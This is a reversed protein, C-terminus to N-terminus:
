GRMVFECVAYVEGNRGRLEIVVRNKDYCVFPIVEDGLKASLKYEIRFYKVYEKNDVFEEAIKLYWANNMHNNVDLHYKRVTFSDKQEYKTGAEIKKGVEEMQLKEDVCIYKEKDQDTIRGIMDSEFDYLFWRGQGKVIYKDESGKRAISYNRLGFVKNFEYPWTSVVLKECDGPFHGEMEEVNVYWSNLIWARKKENQYSIGLGMENSQRNSSDQMYDLLKGFSMRGDADLDAFGVTREYSTKM